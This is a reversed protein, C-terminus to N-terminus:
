HPFPSSPASKPKVKYLKVAKKDAKETPKEAAVAKNTDAGKDAKAAPVDAPKPADALPKVPMASPILANKPLLLTPEIPQAVPYMATHLPGLVSRDFWSVIAGGFWAGGIILSLGIVIWYRIHHPPPDYVYDGLAKVRAWIWVIWEWAWGAVASGKGIINM